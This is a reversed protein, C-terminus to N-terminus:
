ALLRSLFLLLLLFLLLFHLLVQLLLRKLFNGLAILLKNLLDGQQLSCAFHLVALQANLKLLEHSSIPHLHFGAYDDWHNM